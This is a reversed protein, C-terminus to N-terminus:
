LTALGNNQTNTAGTYQAFLGTIYSVRSELSAIAADAKAIQATLNTQLQSVTAQENAIKTQQDAIQKTLGTEDSKIVGSTVDEIGSLLNTATKLFGGTSASGLASVFAPFNANVATSFATTNVSLHGTQDLTIGYNALASSPTGNDFTGLQHLVATLERVLSDGELIGGNQGHHQALTDAAANYASAFSGFASALATPSNAVTITTPQGNVSEGVLNVTLGPALTITRSTSTVPTSSGGVLYSAFSGAAGGSILDTNTSDHLGIVSPGLTAAALSLRYDPSAGSGVNVITAQVQGAAQSNIASVIDTLSSSAPRITTPVAGVSLTLPGSAGLGTKSPDSIVPTGAASLATSYAGVDSVQISYTGTLAGAQVNATVVGANSLSSNLLQTSATQLNSISQQFSLFTSDLSQIASQRSNLDNLKAEASDLPLSAIGVARSLVQQLSSGFKSVGAFVPPAVLSALSSSSIPSTSM